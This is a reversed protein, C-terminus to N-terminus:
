LKRTKVSRLTDLLGLEAREHGLSEELGLSGVIVRVSDQGEKGSGDHTDKM